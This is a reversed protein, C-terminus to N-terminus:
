SANGLQVSNRQWAVLTGGLLPSCGSPNKKSRKGKGTARCQSSVCGEELAAKEGVRDAKYHWYGAVTEFKFLFAGQGQGEPTKSNSLYIVMYAYSTNICPLSCCKCELEYGEGTSWNTLKVLLIRAKRRKTLLVTRVLRARRGGREKQLLRHYLSRSSQCNTWRCKKIHMTEIGVEESNRM